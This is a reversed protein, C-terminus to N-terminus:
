RSLQHVPFYVGNLHAFDGDLTLLEAGLVYTTAAIWLDNEGMAVSRGLHPRGAVPKNRRFAELEAFAAVMDDSAIPIELCQALLKELLQARKQGWSNFYVMVNLEARTVISTAYTRTASPAFDRQLAQVIVPDQKIIGSIVDTDLVLYSM